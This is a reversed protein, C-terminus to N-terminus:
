LWSSPLGTAKRLRVTQNVGSVGAFKVFVELKSSAHNQKLVGETLGTAGVRRISCSKIMKTCKKMKRKMIAM